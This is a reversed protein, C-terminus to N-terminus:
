TVLARWAPTAFKELVLQQARELEDARVTDPQLGHLDRFTDIMRAIVQERPLGTQSRM